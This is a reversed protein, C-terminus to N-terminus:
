VQRLFQRAAESYALAFSQTPENQSIALVKVKDNKEYVLPFEGGEVVNKDFKNLGAQQTNCPVAKNPVQAKGTGIFVTYSYYIQRKYM